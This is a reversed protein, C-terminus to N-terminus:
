KFEALSGYFLFKIISREPSAYISLHWGDDNLYHLLVHETAKGTGLPLDVDAAYSNARIHQVRSKIGAKSLARQAAAKWQANM